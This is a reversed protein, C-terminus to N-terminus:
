LGSTRALMLMILSTVLHGRVGVALLEHFAMFDSVTLAISRLNMLECNGTHNQQMNQRDKVAIPRSTILESMM